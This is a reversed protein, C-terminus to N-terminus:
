GHRCAGELQHKGATARAVVHGVQPKAVAKKIFHMSGEVDFVLDFDGGEKDDKESRMFSMFTNMYPLSSLGNTPWFVLLLITVVFQCIYLFCLNTAVEHELGTSNQSLKPWCIAAYFISLSKRATLKNDGLYTTANFIGNSAFYYLIVGFPTIFAIKIQEKDKLLILELLLRVSEKLAFQHACTRSLIAGKDMALTPNLRQLARWLKSVKSVHIKLGDLCVFDYTKADIHESLMGVPTTA